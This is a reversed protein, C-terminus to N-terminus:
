NPIFGPLLPLLKQSFDLGAARAADEAGDGKGVPVIVRVLAGDTRGLWIADKITAARAWYESTQIRGRGQYWYFALMKLDDKEILYENIQANGDIPHRLYKSMTWGSGPMCNQPSHIAQRQRQSAYYAIFLYAYAGRDNAYIASLYDDAKLERLTRGDLAQADIQRWSDLQQPFRNLATRPPTHESGSARALYQTFAAALLLFLLMTIYSLRKKLM